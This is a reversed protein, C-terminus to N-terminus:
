ALMEVLVLALRSGSLSSSAVSQARWVLLAALGILLAVAAVTSAVGSRWMTRARQALMFQSKEVFVDTAALRFIQRQDTVIYLDQTRKIAAQPDYSIAVGHSM